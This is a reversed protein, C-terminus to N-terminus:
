SGDLLNAVCAGCVDVAHAVVCAQCPAAFFRRDDAVVTIRLPSSAADTASPSGVLRGDSTLYFGSDDPM